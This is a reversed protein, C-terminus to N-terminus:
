AQTCATDASMQPRRRTLAPRAFRSAAYSKGDNHEKVGSTRTGAQDQAVGHICACEPVQLKHPAGRQAIHREVQARTPARACLPVANTGRFGRKESKVRVCVCMGGWLAM